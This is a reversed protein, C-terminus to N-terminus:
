EVRFLVRAAPDLAERPARERVLRVLTGLHDRLLSIRITAPGQDSTGEVEVMRVGTRYRIATVRSWPIRVPPRKGWLPGVVFGAPSVQIRIIAERFLWWAVPALALAALALWGGTREPDLFIANLALAPLFFGFLFIFGWIQFRHGLERAEPQPRTDPRPSTM